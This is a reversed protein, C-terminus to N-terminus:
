YVTGTGVLQLSLGPATDAAESVGIDTSSLGAALGSTAVFSGEYSLFQRVLDNSDVLAVGDPGGNQLSDVAFFLTGFGNQQNDIVGGLGISGYQSGNSGNYFLLTWGDLSTGAAAAIEIGEGVDGGSNDYHIENIFVTAAGAAHPLLLLLLLCVPLSFRTM